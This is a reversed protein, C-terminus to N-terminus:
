ARGSPVETRGHAVPASDDARWRAPQIREVAAGITADFMRRWWALRPGTEVLWHLGAALLLLSAILLPYAIWKTSDTAFRSLMIYGVHAHLLYVPYTMAGISRSYPLELRAVRPLCMSLVALYFLTIIVAAIAPSIAIGKHELFEGAEKMAFQVSMLWGLALPLVRSLSPGRDRISAILAGSAFLFFYGGAWITTEARSPSLLTAVTMGLIWAPFLWDLRRGQGVYLVMLVVLYFELEYVLTWYAGDVPPQGLETAVMTLNAAIQGPTIEMSTGRALFWAITSTFALAVWFAPYLRVARGVVFQRASKGHASKTIVFGSILFFLSVGLYGYKAWGIAWENPSLSTVKGNAIGNVLYHMLVVMVAALFRLYDLLQFRAAPRAPTVPPM